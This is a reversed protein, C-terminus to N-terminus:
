KYCSFNSNTLDCVALNFESVTLGPDYSVTVGKDCPVGTECFMRDHSLTEGTDYPEGNDCSMTIDCSVAVGSDCPETVGTDCSM